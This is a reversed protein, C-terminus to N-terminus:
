QTNDDITNKLLYMNHSEKRDTKTWARNKWLLSWTQAPSCDWYGGVGMGVCLAGIVAIGDM